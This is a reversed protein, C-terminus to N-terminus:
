MYVRKIKTDLFTIKGENTDGNLLLVPNGSLPTSVGDIVMSNTNPNIAKLLESVRAARDAETVDQGNDIAYIVM